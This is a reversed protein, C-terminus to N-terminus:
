QIDGHESIEDSLKILEYYITKQKEPSFQGQYDVHTNIDFELRVSIEKSVIKQSNSKFFPQDISAELKFISWKMLRNIILTDNVKSKRPRNIQYLLDTSNEADIKLSPLFKGITTYGEVKSTVPILFIGGFGIRNVIPCESISFWKEILSQFILKSEEYEGLSIIKQSDKNPLYIFSVRLPDIDVVFNGTKYEGEFHMIKFKPQQSINEAPAGVLKIWLNEDFIFEDKPFFTFRLTSIKWYYETQTKNFTEM